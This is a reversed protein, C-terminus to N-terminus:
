KRKGKKMADTILKGMITTTIRSYEETGGVIYHVGPKPVDPPYLGKKSIDTRLSPLVQTEQWRTQGEKSLLWNVFLIAANPHPAREILSLSGGGPAIPSGEKFQEGPVHGVPLGQEKAFTINRPSTFLAIPFRGKGLWDAIQRQDSSLTIDMEGFLRQIFQPGLDPHKYIVRSIVGGPGGRRIDSSVMKGKWKPNLLDFYSKFQSPDVMNTNIYAMTQVYGQFMLNTYPKNTDAWWLRKFLWVSPDLIEPLLLRPKLPLLAGAEKMTVVASTTGGVFVDPIFRNARRESLMRSLTQVRRAMASQVKIGPYARTFYDIITPKGRGLVSAGYIMLAGEKRAAKVLQEWGKPKPEASNVQAVPAIIGMMMIAAALTFGERSVLRKFLSWISFLRQETM